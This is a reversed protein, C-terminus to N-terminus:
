LVYLFFQVGHQVRNQLFLGEFFTGLKQKFQPILIDRIIVFEAEIDGRFHRIRM